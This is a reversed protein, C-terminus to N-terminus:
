SESGSAVEDLLAPGAVVRGTAAAVLAGYEKLAYLVLAMQQVRPLDEETYWYHHGSGRGDSHVTIFGRHALYWLQRYTLGPVRQLVQTASLYGDPLIPDNGKVNTAVTAPAHEARWQEYHKACLRRARAPLGCGPERCFRKTQTLRYEAQYHKSCLGRSRVPLDCDPESCTRDSM